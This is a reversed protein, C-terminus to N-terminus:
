AKSPRVARVQARRRHSEQLRMLWLAPLLRRLISLGRGSGLPPHAGLRRCLALAEAASASDSWILLNRAARDAEFALDDRYDDADPWAAYSKLAALRCNWSQRYDHSFSETRRLGQTLMKPLHHWRAGAHALRVHIDSDEWMRLSEDCGGVKAWLSRRIISSNFGMPNRILHSCPRTQLNVPDYIWRVVLSGSREDIWDANCSVVDAENSCLVALEANFEPSILDDADHFHIWENAAEAALRNRAVGVGRNVGGEVVRMGLGRAVSITDDTSGDDYAVVEAFPCTQAKICDALRPLFGAANFCPILLSVQPAHM